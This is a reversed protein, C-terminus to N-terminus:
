TAWEKVGRVMFTELSFYSKEGAKQTKSNLVDIPTLPAVGVLQMLVVQHGADGRGNGNGQGRLSFGQDTLTIRAVSLEGARLARKHLGIVRLNEHHTIRENGCAHNQCNEHLFM